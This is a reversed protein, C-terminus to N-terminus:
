IFLMTIFLSIFSITVLASLMLVTYKSPKPVEHGCENCYRVFADLQNGCYACRRSDAATATIVAGVAGGACAM